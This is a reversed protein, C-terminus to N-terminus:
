EAKKTLAGHSFLPVGEALGQFTYIWAGGTAGSAAVYVEATGPKFVVNTTRTLEGRDRGPMLVGAIPIGHKNLILVRGQDNLALYMNGQVDVCIGDAGDHGSLRYWVAAKQVSQRNEHLTLHYIENALSCGVWVSKEDATFAMGNPTTLHTMFPEVSQFDPSWRYIGGTPNGTYGTFDAAYLNGASDFTVDSLREPKGKWKITIQRLDSGDLNMVLLEGTLCAILIRGDKHIALGGMRVGHRNILTTIEKAPTVKLISRDVRGSMGKDVKGPYAAMLILNGNRDFAMGKLFVDGADIRLWPDAKIQPLLAEGPPLPM